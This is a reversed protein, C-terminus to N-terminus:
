PDSTVADKGQHRNIVAVRQLDRELPAAQCRRVPRRNGRELRLDDRREGRRWRTDQEVGLVARRREGRRAAPSGGHHHRELSLAVAVGRLPRVM